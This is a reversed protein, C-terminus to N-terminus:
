AKLVKRNGAKSPKQVMIAIQLAMRDERTHPRQPIHSKRQRHWQVHDSDTM